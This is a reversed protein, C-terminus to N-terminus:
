HTTEGKSGEAAVSFEVLDMESALVRGGKCICKLYAKLFCILNFIFSIEHNYYFNTVTDNHDAAEKLFSLSNSYSRLGGKCM